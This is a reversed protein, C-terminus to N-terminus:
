VPLRCVQPIVNGGAENLEKATKELVDLRRGTIYIRAGNTSFGQTIAKGLGSGGGTVVVVKGSVDFLNSITFNFM